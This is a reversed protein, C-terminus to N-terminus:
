TLEFSVLSDFAKLLDILVMATIHKRDMAPLIHDTVMLSFTETSHFERNGSEHFTLRNTEKLYKRFQCFPIKEAVKSLVQLLSILRNKNPVEHDGDKM